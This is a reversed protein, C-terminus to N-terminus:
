PWVGGDISGVVRMNISGDENVKLRRDANDADSLEVAGIKIDGAALSFSADVKLKGDGTYADAVNIISGDSKILRGSGPAYENINYSMIESGKKTDSPGAGQRRM